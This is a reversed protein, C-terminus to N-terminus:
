KKVNARKERAFKVFGIVFPQNISLLALTEQCLM